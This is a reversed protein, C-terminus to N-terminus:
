AWIETGLNTKSTQEFKVILHYRETLPQDEEGPTKIINILYPQQESRRPQNCVNEM